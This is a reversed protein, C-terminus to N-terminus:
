NGIYDRLRQTHVILFGKSGETRVIGDQKFSALAMNVRQRSLGCILALDRQHISLRLADERGSKALMLLAKAVRKEPGLLRSAVLMGVFEGMRANMVDCLFNSFELSSSRLVHFTNAPVLCLRASTLSRLDYQMLERKLLSGDGCWEGERLYYLTTEDGEPGVICMQLQGSVVGYWYASPEGARAVYQGAAVKMEVSTELTLARLETSLAHFWPWKGLFEALSATSTEDVAPGQTIRHEMM